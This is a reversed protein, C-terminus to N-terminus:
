FHLFFDFHSGNKTPTPPRKTNLASSHSHGNRQCTALWVEGITVKDLHGYALLGALIDPFKELQHKFWGMQFIHEDFHSDVGLLPSFSFHKCIKSVVVWTKIEKFGM